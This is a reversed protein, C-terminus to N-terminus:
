KPSKPDPSIPLAIVGINLLIRSDVLARDIMIYDDEDSDM